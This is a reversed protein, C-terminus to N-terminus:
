KLETENFEHFSISRRCFQMKGNWFYKRWDRLFDAGEGSLLFLTEPYSKSIERMNEEHEYWMCEESLVNDYENEGCIKNFNEKFESTGIIEPESKLEYITYYGM